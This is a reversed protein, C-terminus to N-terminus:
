MIFKKKQLFSFFSFCFFSFFFSLFSSLLFYHFFFNQKCPSIQTRTTTTTRTAAAATTTTATLLQCLPNVFQGGYGWCEELWHPQNHSKKRESILLLYPLVLFSIQYPSPIRLRMEKLEETNLKLNYTYLFMCLQINSYYMYTKSSHCIATM